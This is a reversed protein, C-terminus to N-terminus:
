FRYQISSYVLQADFDRYGGYLPDQYHFFGYRLLWRINKSLRRTLTATIGHEEAGTGYPVGVASIDQYDDAHYYFYSLKLDTKDDLVFGSSFNLMWYNNQANIIAQTVDSAPTKTESLVYNFGAQFYLRSWPTWTIDEAIIHSTMRSSEIKDLGSIPDPGTDITSYQFEYTTLFSLNPRARWTLRAHGDYTNFDQLVLYGPYRTFSNNPTSDLDFSYNYSNIKYYGGVDTSIRRSPYWRAGLSYKQFLYTDDSQLQVPQRGVVATGFPMPVLGGSQNLNGQGESWEGRGYFVWNTIGNYLLDLRERVDLINQNGASNFPQPTDTAFTELGSSDATWDDYEVRVSPIISIHPGPKYFLNLDVDYEHLRSNGSLNYYGFDTQLPNPAYSVDYTSGFIRSGSLNNNLDSYAFGSSLTMNKRLATETFAHVNFLDYSTSQQDTIKQEFPDGPFRDLNRADELKGTEYSLGAGFATAKIHHSVDLQFLDSRETIDYFSPSLGKTVGPVPHAMSWSTSDKEGERESHTYKFVIKPINELTLGGEVSINQRDLTLADPSLPYYTGSPPYFGGDGDYWTRFESASFRLYGLKERELSLNLQYDHSDFISHGDITFTTGKSPSGQYHLDEIGGFAGFTNQQQRQFSANNGHTAFGGVGLEVWNNYTTAGGEFFEQPTLPKPPPPANTVAAPSAGASGTIPAANTVAAPSAGASGTVPAANTAAAPSAGASGTSPAVNTSTTVPAANTIAAPAANTTADQLSDAFARSLTAIGLSIIILARYVLRSRLYPLHCIASPWLVLRVPRTPKM